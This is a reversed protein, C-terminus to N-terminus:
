AAPAAEAARKNRVHSAVGTAASGGGIGLLVLLALEAWDTAVDAPNSGSELAALAEDIGGVMREIAVLGDAVAAQAETQADADTGLREIAAGLQAQAAGLDRVGAGFEQRLTGATERLQSPSVCAALALVAPFLYLFRM